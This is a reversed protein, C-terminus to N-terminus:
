RSFTENAVADIQCRSLGIDRLEVDTLSELEARTRQARSLRRAWGALFACPGEACTTAGTARGRCALMTMIM